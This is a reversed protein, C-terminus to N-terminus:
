VERRIIGPTYPAPIFPRIDGNSGPNINGGGQNQAKPLDYSIVYGVGNGIEVQFVASPAKDQDEYRLVRETPTLNFVRRLVLCSTLQSKIIEFDAAWQQQTRGEKYMDVNVVLIIDDKERCVFRAPIAVPLEEKMAEEASQMEIQPTSSTEATPTDISGTAVCGSLLLAAVITPWRM